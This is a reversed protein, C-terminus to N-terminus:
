TADREDESRNVIMVKGKECSSNAGFDRGYEDIVDLLSQLEKVSESMVVVDAYLLMFVKDRGVRVGANMRRLRVALEETHISILIPSM